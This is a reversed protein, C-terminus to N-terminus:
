VPWGTTLGAVAHKAAGARTMLVPGRNCGETAWAQAEALTAVGVPNLVPAPAPEMSVSGGLDHDFYALLTAWEFGNPAVRTSRAIVDHNVHAILMGNNKQAGYKAVAAPTVWVLMGWTDVLLGKVVDHDIVAVNHGNRPNPDGAVDWVDGNARPMQAHLWADPLAMSLDCAGSTIWNALMVERWNTADVVVWGVDKSGDAYGIKVGDSASVTPDCGNDTSPDGVVYGGIRSYETDLQRDTYIFPAGMANGTLLGIRRARAAIVCDGLQNNLFMQTLLTELPTATSFNTRKPVLIDDQKHAILKMTLAHHVHLNDVRCGDVRVRLGLHDATRATM